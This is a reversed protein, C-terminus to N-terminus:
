RKQVAQRQPAIQRRQSVLVSVTKNLIRREQIRLQLISMRRMSAANAFMSPFLGTGAARHCRQGWGHEGQPKIASHSMGDLVADVAVSELNCGHLVPFRGQLSCLYLSGQKHSHKDVKHMLACLKYSVAAQM